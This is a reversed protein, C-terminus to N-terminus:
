SVGGNYTPLDSLTIFGSDNTLDSTKSPITINGSTLISANNITKINTGSVLKVQFYAKLKSWLYSTGNYDLYKQAM